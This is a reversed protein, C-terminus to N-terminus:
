NVQNVCLNLKKQFILLCLKNYRQIKVKNVENQSKNKETVSFNGKMLTLTTKM